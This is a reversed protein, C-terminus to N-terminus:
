SLFNYQNRFSKFPLSIELLFDVPKWQSAVGPGLILLPKIILVYFENVNYVAAAAFISM